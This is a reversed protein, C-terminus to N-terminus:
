RGSSTSTAEAVRDIREREGSGEADVHKAVVQHAGDREPLVAVEVDRLQDLAVVGIEAVREAVEAVANELQGARRQGLATLALVHFLLEEGLERRASARRGLREVGHLRVAREFRDPLHDARRVLVDIAGGGPRRGLPAVHAPDPRDDRGRDLHEFRDADHGPRHHRLAGIRQARLEPERRNRDPM